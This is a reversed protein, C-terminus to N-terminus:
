KIAASLVSASRIVFTCTSVASRACCGRARKVMKLRDPGASAPPCWYTTHLTLGNAWASTMSTVQKCVFLINWFTMEHVLENEFCFLFNLCWSLFLRCTLSIIINRAQMLKAVWGDWPYFIIKAKYCSETKSVCGLHHRCPPQWVYWRHTPWSYVALIFNM